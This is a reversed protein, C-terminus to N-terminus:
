DYRCDRHHHRHRRAPQQLGPRFTTRRIFLACAPGVPHARPACRSRGGARGIGGCAAAGSARPAPAQDSPEAPDLHERARVFASVCARACICVRVRACVCLCVCRVQFYCAAVPRSPFVWSFSVKFPVWHAGSPSNSQAPIVCRPVGPRVYRGPGLLRLLRAAGLRWM